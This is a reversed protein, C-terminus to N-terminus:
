FPYFGTVNKVAEAEDKSSVEHYAHFEMSFSASGSTITRLDKSYGLLEALPVLATVVRNNSRNTIDQISGRRRGFDSIVISSNEEDTVVEVNMVPELLKTQATKLLKHVCQNVASSLVTDSTGKSTELWHLVFRVDIVPCGLKPGHTLAAKVSSTIINLKNLHIAATNSANDPSNDLSLLKKNPEAKLISMIVFVSHFTSGIKLDLKHEEKASSLLGEKYSIQPRSMDVAIKYETKIREGIVELHLEGMGALITEGTEEDYRVKLSPDERQLQSLASELALQYSQSPPEISCFFVPDPVHLDVGLKEVSQEQTLNSSNALKKLAVKLANGSSTIFDGCVTSKLGTVAVIAGAHAKEVENYDDAYAIMVRGVNESKSQTANHIKQSKELEGSYIRLFTVPGKQKEHVIKFVRASLSSGFAKFVDLNHREIPSPLYNVISDMLSQVGINKYSSGCILPIGKQSLCVRRIAALLQDSDISDIGNDLFLNAITDDMDALDGILTERSKCIIEWQKTNEEVATSLVKQGCAGHWTQITKTIVDILGIFRGSSEKVPIQLLLPTINFKSKLLDVCLPLSADARDMKNAYVIRPIGYRDAQRWVTLTQAEVGASSDLVVVAGDLINLTQEVQMTFDIHGPTDVLNINCNKWPFTVAASTITIGRDREQDMYDTVTNGDHVEGMNCIMGSYYLMRETTTTKGADIHALIGINRIKSLDNTKQSYRHRSAVLYHWKKLIIQRSNRYM